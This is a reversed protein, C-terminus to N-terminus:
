RHGGEDFGPAQPADHVEVGSLDDFVSTGARSPFPHEDVAFGRRDFLARKPEHRTELEFDAAPRGADFDLHTREKADALELEEHPILEDVM